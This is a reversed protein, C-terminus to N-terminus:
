LHKRRIFGYVLAPLACLATSPEASPVGSRLYRSTVLARKSIRSARDVVREGCIGFRRSLVRDGGRKSVRSARDVVREECTRARRLLVRDCSRKSIRSARDVVREGCIGARRLLVRDGGRKSVRAARDVVREGCIGARRLLVRDYSRKSVRTARYDHLSPLLPRTPLQTASGRADAFRRRIRSHVEVLPCATSKEKV